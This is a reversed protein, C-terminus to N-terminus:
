LYDLGTEELNAIVRPIVQTSDTNMKQLSSRQHLFHNEQGQKHCTPDADSLHIFRAPEQSLDFQVAYTRFLPMGMIVMPGWQTPFPCPLSSVLLMCSGVLASKGQSTAQQAKRADEKTLPMTFFKTQGHVMGLSTSNRQGADAIYSEPPLVFDRNGLRFSLKPFDTLDSCDQIGRETLVKILNEQMYEPVTILSTGTDVLVGCGNECGLQTAPAHPDAEILKFNSTGFAWHVKGEVKISQWLSDQTRDVDHWTIFGDMTPIKSFCFMFREIGLRSIWRSNAHSYNGPGIGIIGMLSGASHLIAPMSHNVIVQLPVKGKVVQKSFTGEMSVEDFGLRVVAAGSGYVVHQLPINKRVSFTSSYAPDYTAHPCYQPSCCTVSSDALNNKTSTITDKAKHRFNKCRETNWGRVDSPTSSNQLLSHSLQLASHSRCKSFVVIEWSGTDYIVKQETGGISMIGTYVVGGYESLLRQVLPQKKEKLDIDRV